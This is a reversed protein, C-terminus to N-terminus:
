SKKLFYNKVKTYYSDWQEYRLKIITTNEDSIYTALPEIEIVSFWKINDDVFRASLIATMPIFKEKKRRDTYRIFQM